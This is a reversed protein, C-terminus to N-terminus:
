CGCPIYTPPMSPDVVACALARARASGDAAGSLLRLFGTQVTPDPDWPAAGRTITETQERKSWPWSPLHSSSIITVVSSSIADPDSGFPNLQPSTVASRSKDAHMHARARSYNISTSQCWAHAHAHPPGGRGAEIPGATQGNRKGAIPDIKWGLQFKLNTTHIFTSRSRRFGPTYQSPAPELLLIKEKKRVMIEQRKDLLSFM